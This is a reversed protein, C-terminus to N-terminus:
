RPGEMATLWLWSADPTTAALPPLVPDGVGQTFLVHSLLAPSHAAASTPADALLTRLAFAPREPRLVALLMVAAATALALWAVHPWRRRSKAMPRLALLTRNVFDPTPAPADYRLLLRRWQDARQRQVAAFTSAVFDPQPAPPQLAALLERPLVDDDRESAAAPALAGADRLRAITRGVFDDGIPPPPLDLWGAEPPFPAREREREDVQDDDNAPSSM